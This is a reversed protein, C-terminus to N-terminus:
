DPLIYHYDMRCYAYPWQSWKKVLGAKVPNSIVYFIIRELEDQNRIVHDYSEAQWFSGSRNLLQNCEAATFRKLSHMIKILEGKKETIPQFVLHLHNPMLSYAFLNYVKGDRYELARTICAAVEPQRLWDPGYKAQDLEREWFAFSSKKPETLLGPEYEKKESSFLYGPEPSIEENIKQVVSWPITNALRTTVFFIAGEPQWHPLNRYYFEKQGM